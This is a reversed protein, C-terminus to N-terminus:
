VPDCEFEAYAPGPGENLWQGVEICSFAGSDPLLWGRPPGGCDLTGLAVAQDGLVTQVRCGSVQAMAFGARARIPGFRPAYQPNVRVAEALGGRVRVDFVSGAVAVRTVPADRFHRGTQACGALLALLGILCAIRM